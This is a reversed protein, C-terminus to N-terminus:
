FQNIRSLCNKCWSLLLEFAEPFDYDEARGLKMGMELVARDESSLNSLLAQKDPYFVGDKLFYLNQLIFFVGKYTGPLNRRNKQIDAHIYRHCIEHYLNGVSLKIFNVIDEKSYCPVFDVLKGYYDKTGHVMSCIELPNWDKMEQKGCIFGCAKDPSPLCNVLNRYARLDDATLSDLIVVIDLDSNETAEGRLYSGQLGVYLLRDSYLKKMSSLLEDMYSPVDFM